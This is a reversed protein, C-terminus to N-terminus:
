LDMYGYIWLNMFGHLGHMWVDVYMCVYRGVVYVYIYVYIKSVSLLQQLDTSFRRIAHHPQCLENQIKQILRLGEDFTIVEQLNEMDKEIEKFKTLSESSMQPHPETFWRCACVEYRDVLVAVIKDNIRQQHNLIQKQAQKIESFFPIGVAEVWGSSGITVGMSQSVAKSTGTVFTNGAM